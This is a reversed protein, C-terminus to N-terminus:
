STRDEAEFAAAPLHERIRGFLVDLDCHGWFDYGALEDRFIEGFAPRFDCLKYPQSLWVPFEFNSRIRAVLDAFACVRVTVNPPADAIPQATFILWHVDPNRAMSEVVLPLYPPRVGFHPVILRMSPGSRPSVSPPERAAAGAPRARPPPRGGFHPVALRMSPGSM